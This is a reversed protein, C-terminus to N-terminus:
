DKSKLHQPCWHSEHTNAKWRKNKNRETLCHYVNILRVSFRQKSFREVVFFSESNCPYTGNKVRSKFMFINEVSHHQFRYDWLKGGTHNFRDTANEYATAGQPDTTGNTNLVHNHLFQGHETKTPTEIIFRWPWQKPSVTEGTRILLAARQKALSYKLHSSSATPTMQNQMIEDTLYFSVTVSYSMCADSGWSDRLRRSSIRLELVPTASQVEAIIVVM